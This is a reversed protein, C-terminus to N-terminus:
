CNTIETLFVDLMNTSKKTQSFQDKLDRIVKKSRMLLKILEIVKRQLSAGAETKKHLNENSEVSFSM